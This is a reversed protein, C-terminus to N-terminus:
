YNIPLYTTLFTMANTTIHRARINNPQVVDILLSTIAQIGVLVGIGVLVNVGVAFGVLVGVSVGVLM